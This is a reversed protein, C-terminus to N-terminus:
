LFLAVALRGIEILDLALDFGIHGALRLGIVHGLQAFGGLDLPHVLGGGGRGLWVRGCLRVCRSLWIRCRGGIGFHRGRLLLFESDSGRLRYYKRDDHGAKHRADVDQSGTSPGSSTSPRSLGPWSSKRQRYPMGMDVATEGSAGVSTGSIGAIAPTFSAVAAAPM